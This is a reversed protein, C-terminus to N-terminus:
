SKDACICNERKHVNFSQWQNILGDFVKVQNSVNALGILLKIAELAQMSGLIGLVPGVVGATQCNINPEGKTKPYFCQYCASDPQKPNVIFLQGEFRIASASILPTQHKLAFENLLYRTNLNDSCDLVLDVEPLYYDLLEKDMMQDITEIDIENNLKSLNKAAVDVKDAGIDQQQFMIQRHLNSIDVHDGDCLFLKGVGAAALYLACPNGLGGIGVILVRSRKLQLQQEIGFEKLLMQRSYRQQEKSTLM